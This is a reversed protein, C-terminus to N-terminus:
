RATGAFADLLVEECVVDSSALPKSAVVSVKAAPRAPGFTAEQCGFFHSMVFEVGRPHVDRQNPQFYMGKLVPSNILEYSPFYDVDDCTRALHGAVARLISKSEMTAVM